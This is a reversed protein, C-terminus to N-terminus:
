RAPKRTRICRCRFGRKADIVKFLLPFDPYAECLTVGKREGGAIVSPDSPHASIEWSEEGWLAPHVSKEFMLQKMM